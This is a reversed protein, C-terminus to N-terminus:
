GTAPSQPRSVALRLGVGVLFWGIARRAAAPSGTARWVPSSSTRAPCATAARRPADSRTVAAQRMDAMRTHAVMETLAPNMSM